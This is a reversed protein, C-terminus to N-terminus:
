RPWKEVVTKMNETRSRKRKPTVPEVDSTFKPIVGIVSLELYQTIDEPTKVSTDMYELLLVLAVAIFSGIMLALISTAIPKPRIPAHPVLAADVVVANEVKMYSRIQARFSEAVADALRAAMVPDKDEIVFSLIETDRVSTVTLKGQLDQVSIGQLGLRTIVSAMVARSKAVEGYTKTLNRSLMVDNLNIQTSGDKIVWLTTSAQYVPDILYMSGLAGTLLAALPMLLLILYRRRLMSVMERFEIRPQQLLPRGRTFGKATSM